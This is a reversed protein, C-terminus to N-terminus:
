NIQFIGKSDWESDGIKNLSMTRDAIRYSFDDVYSDTM